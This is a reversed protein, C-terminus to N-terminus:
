HHWMKIQNKIDSKVLTSSCKRFQDGAIVLRKWSSLMCSEHWIYNYCTGYEDNMRTLSQRTHVTNWQPFADKPRHAHEDVAFIDTPKSMKWWMHISQSARVLRRLVLTHWLNCATLIKACHLQMQRCGLLQTPNVPSNRALAWSLRWYKIAKKKKPMGRKENCNLIFEWIWVKLILKSLGM